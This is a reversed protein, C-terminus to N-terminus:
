DDTENKRLELLREFVRVWNEPPQAGTLPYKQDIFYFPVGQAGLMKSRTFERGVEAALDSDDFAERVEGAELGLQGGLEVLVEVDEISRGEGFYARYLLELLEERVGRSKALRLVRHARTTNAHVVRDFHIELGESAAIETLQSLMADVRDAPHGEVRTLFEREDVPQDFPLDPGIEYSHGEVEVEIGPHQERFAAIGRELRHKGVYCWPCAIDSWVDVRITESM